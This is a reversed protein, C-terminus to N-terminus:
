YVENDELKVHHVVPSEPTARSSPAFTPWYHQRQFAYSPIHAFQRHYPRDFNVWDITTGQQYLQALTDLLVEWNGRNRRLSPLWLSHDEHGPMKSSISLLTPQPGIELFITCNLAALAAINEQYSVMGRAHRVWYDADILGPTVIQGTLNSILPIEPDRYSIKEAVRALEPLMPDLLRSHFAHSVQLPEVPIDMRTFTDQMRQIENEDGAIVVQEIGNFAIDLSSERAALITAVKAANAFVTLMAGGRPLDQMLAARRAILTLADDRTMVGALTAAIYEGVSYGMVFDPKVGFSMWLRALAYGLAFLCPQAYGTQNIQVAYEPSFLLATLPVDLYHNLVLACEDITKKFTPQTDYLEKGMGSYQSGQGTFVFAIKPSAIKHLRTSPTYHELQHRLEDYNGAVFAVRAEFHTRGANATFALDTLSPKDQQKIFVLYREILAELAQPTKASLALIQLPREIENRVTPQAIGEEILVHANTGSFGFSSIGALRKKNTRLWPKPETPIIAPIASLNIAPNITEFHLHQPLMEHQMALVVKILGAIGGAAELHGINTKVSGILLPDDVTHSNRFVANLASMEISDSLATGLGHAEIYNIEAPNVRAQALVKRILTEQAAPNAVNLGRSKGDQNVAAGRVIALITNGDKEAEALRKLVVVGCGESRVLGNANRDFAKCRGEDSLMMSQSLSITNDPLLIINVGACLALSCEEQQLSQCATHLAVLSSSCATDIALCPGHLDFFSAVRAPLGNLTNNTLYSTDVISDDHVRLLNIYEATTVGTFVGTQSGKLAMPSIGAHELAEWCVELLIRQQPDLGLAERPSIGFFHADFLDVNKIFGGFRSNMKGPEAPKPDYYTDVDWRQPPIEEIGNGGERLMQWYAQTDDGGGPFRCAMGVIAIADPSRKSSAKLQMRTTDLAAVARKLHAVLEEYTPPTSSQSM